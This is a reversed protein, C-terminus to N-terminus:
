KFNSLVQFAFQLVFGISAIMIEQPGLTIHNVLGFIRAATEFIIEFFLFTAFGFIGASFPNIFYIRFLSREAERSEGKKHILWSYIRLFEEM